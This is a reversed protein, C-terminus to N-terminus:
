CKRRGFAEKGVGRDCDIYLFLLFPLKFYSMSGLLGLAFIPLFSEVLCSRMVLKRYRGAKLLLQIDFIFSMRRSRFRGQAVPSQHSPIANKHSLDEMDIEKKDM